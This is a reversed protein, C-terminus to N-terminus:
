PFAPCVARCRAISSCCRSPPFDARALAVARLEARNRPFTGGRDRGLAHMDRHTFVRDPLAPLPLAAHPHFWLLLEEVIWSDYSVRTRLRGPTKSIWIVFHLPRHRLFPGHSGASREITRTAAPPKTSPHPCPHRIELLEPARNQLAPLPLVERQRLKGPDRAHRQVLPRRRRVHVQRREHALEQQVILLRELRLRAKALRLEHDVIVGPKVDLDQEPQVPRRVDMLVLEGARKMHHVPRADVRVVLELVRPRDRRVEAHAIHAHLLDLQQLGPARTGIM